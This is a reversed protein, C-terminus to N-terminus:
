SINIDSFQFPINQRLNQTEEPFIQWIRRADTPFKNSSLSNGPWIGAWHIPNLVCGVSIMYEWQPVQELGILPFEGLYCLRNELRGKHLLQTLIGKWQASAGLWSQFNSHVANSKLHKLGAIWIQKQSWISWIESESKCSKCQLVRTTGEAQSHWALPFCPSREFSCTCTSLPFTGTSYGLVQLASDLPFGPHNV